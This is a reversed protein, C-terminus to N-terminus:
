TAAMSSLSVRIALASVSQDSPSFAGRLLLGAAAELEAIAQTADALSRWRAERAGGAMAAV